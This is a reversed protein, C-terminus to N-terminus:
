QLTSVSKMQENIVKEHLFLPLNGSYLMLDHFKRQTFERPYTKEFKAKLAKLLHKGILYSLQYGPTYTYRKVEGLASLDDMGVDEVLHRIAQEFSMEGISLKVDIVIRWARWLMDKSRILAVEPTNMFGAEAAADECYHAWGEVFETPSSFLRAISPNLNACCLQLHHGPYGEHVSTNILDDYCFETLRETNGEVPTIMYVGKQETDFKGPSSYAAFPIFHRMFIPTEEVVLSENEPLTAFGKEQVFTRAQSMLNRCQELVGEISEPHNKRIRALIEEVSADPDILHANKKINENCEKIYKEGLELIESRTLGLRRKELLRDFQEPSLYFDHTSRPLIEDYLWHEYATISDKAKKSKDELDALLRKDDVLKESMEQIFDCYGILRHCSEIGIEVWIWIPKELLEKTEDLYSPIRDMRSIISKLRDVYPTSDRAILTYLASGIARPGTPFSRWLKKEKLSFLELELSYILCERDIREDFSLNDESWGSVDKLFNEYLTITEELYRRGGQPMLPDYEILGLDSGWIPDHTLISYFYREIMGSFESMLNM